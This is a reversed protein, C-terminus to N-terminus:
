SKFKRKQKFTSQHNQYELDRMFKLIYLVSTCIFYFLQIVLVPCLIKIYEFNIFLFPSHFRIIMHAFIRYQSYNGMPSIPVRPLEEQPPPPPTPDRYWVWREPLPPPALGPGNKRHSLRCDVCSSLTYQIYMVPRIFQLRFPATYEKCGLLNSM